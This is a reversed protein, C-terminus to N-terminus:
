EPKIYGKIYAKLSLDRGSMTSRPWKRAVSLGKWVYFDITGKFGDIIAQHPLAILKAM